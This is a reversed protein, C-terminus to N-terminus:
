DQETPSPPLAPDSARTPGLAPRALEAAGLAAAGLAAAGLAAAGLAAANPGARGLIVPPPDLVAALPHRAALEDRAPQLLLEGAALAVGGAVVVLDPDIVPVLLAVARALARGAVALVGAAQADGALAADIVPRATLADRDRGARAAIGPGSAYLELCGRGGCCCPPGDRDIPLHGLEGAQGHSGRLLAGEVVIGGGVGTGLTFLVLSRPAATTGDAACYRYEAYAAADGDNALLVPCGLRGALEDRLAAKEMGLNAAILVGQREADLWGAVAVGVMTVGGRSGALETVVEDVLRVASAADRVAHERRVETEVRGAADVLVGAIKSGGLDIGIVTV